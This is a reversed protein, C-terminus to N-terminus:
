ARSWPTAAAKLVCRAPARARWGRTRGRTRARRRPLRRRDTTPEHRPSVASARPRRPARRQALHIGVPEREERAPRPGLPRQPRVDGGERRPPQSLAHQAADLGDRGRDGDEAVVDARGDDDRRDGVLPHRMGIPLLRERTGGRGGPRGEAQRGERRRAAASTAAAAGPREAEELHVDKAVVPDGASSIASASSAPKEATKRM